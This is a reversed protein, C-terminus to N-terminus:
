AEGIGHLSMMDGSAEAFLQNICPIWDGGKYWLGAGGSTSREIMGNNYYIGIFDGSVVSINLGSFTQKSGSVVNGITHSDRTSFNNGSVLFFTAVECQTMNTAAWIEVSKIIGTANAPNNKGIITYSPFQSPRDIAEAGISIPIIISTGTKTKYIGTRAGEGVADNQMYFYYQTSIDLGTVTFTYHDVAFIGLYERLMSYKSIGLYLKGTKDSNVDIDVKFGNGTVDYITCNKLTNWTLGEKEASMKFGTFRNFGSTIVKKTKAYQDWASKDAESYGDISYAEIANKFYGKQDQQGLTNPNVTKTYKKVDNLGKRKRYILNNDIKGMAVISFLPGKVKAM